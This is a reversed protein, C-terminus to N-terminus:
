IGQISYGSDVPIVAGTIFHSAKSALFIAIGALDETAGWRQSPTRNAVSQELGNIEQRAQRTLATDIWGPLIANVQINDAGWACAMSKTMQVVGGKSAAYAVSYSSGFISMMSGINIIKGSGNRKMHPHVIQSLMFASTLNTEIVERWEKIQYEEPQKRINMGANNILVDIEGFQQVVLDILKQCSIENCIDIAIFSAQLGLSQLYIRAKDGKDRNRGVLVVSCGAEALGKAMGFGIGGNGGTILAVHDKLEFNELM